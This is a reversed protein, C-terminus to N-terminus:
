RSARFQYSELTGFGVSDRVQLQVEYTTTDAFPLTYTGTYRFSSDNTKQTYVFDQDLSDVKAIAVTFESLYFNDAFVIDIPVTSNGHYEGNETPSSIEITPGDGDINPNYEPINLEDKCGLIALTAFVGVTWKKM